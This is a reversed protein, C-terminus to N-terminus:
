NNCLFTYIARLKDVEAKTLRKNDSNWLDKYSNLYSLWKTKEAKTQCGEGIDFSYKEEFTKFGEIGTNTKTWNKEIITKFEAVDMVDKWDLELEEGVEKYYKEKQKEAKDICTRKIPSIELEWKDGYLSRLHEILDTRIQKVISKGYKRGEEQLADDQMEKWEVLENPCYDPMKTNIVQQYFRLWKVDAGAGYVEKLYAKEDDKIENKLYNCLIELFKTIEYNRDDNESSSNLGGKNILYQHASGILGIFAYTGRNSLIFKSEFVDPYNDLAYSYCYELFNVIEKQSKEMAKSHDLEQVNYISYKVFDDTLKNGRIRSLLTSVSLATTFPKPQLEATDEGVTIKNYLPSNVDNSLKKAISARLAKLRDEMKDSDWLLDITLDIRLSASVAKQNENIDMFIELQKAHEMGDFAVVPITNTDKYKSGAYGYVRHQGDIIYALGYVNPINLTGFCSLSDPLKPNPQFLVKHKSTNNFNIIISNPFFGGNDIYETIGKLRKPMLLRQYTPFESDNSRTRHLVFGTKLLTAPEVSFMYYTYGGMKGRIAPIQIQEKNILEGKLVLGYFQYIASSRYNAIINNIYAYTNDNYVFAKMDHLRAIDKSDPSFRYNKTAFIYRVNLSQGYIQRLAKRVGDMRLSLTEIESKFSPAKTNPVEAAKCEVVFAVEKKEDIAVVDLQKHDHEGDGWKVVLHNDKNLIRFGLEYFQCWVQDEFFTSWPKRKSVKTKTKGEKEIRYGMELYKDLNSNPVTPTYFENKRGRYETGLLVSDPEYMKQKIEDVQDASLFAM